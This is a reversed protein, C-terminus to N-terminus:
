SRQYTVELPIRTHEQNDLLVRIWHLGESTLKMELQIHATNAHHPRGDFNLDLPQMLMDHVIGDPTELQVNLATRGRTKGAVFGVVLWGRFTSEPLTDPPLVPSGSPGSGPPLPMAILQARVAIRDIVRIYSMAGDKAEIVMECLFAQKLYPGGAQASMTM